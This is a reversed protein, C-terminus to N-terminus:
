FAVRLSRRFSPGGRWRGRRREVTVVIADDDVDYHVWLRDRKRARALVADTLEVSAAVLRATTGAGSRHVLLGTAATEVLPVSAPEAPLNLSVRSRGRRM